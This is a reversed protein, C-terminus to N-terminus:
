APKFRERLETLVADADLLHVDGREVAAIRRDIEGAWASDVEADTNLLSIWLADLLDVREEATLRLADDIVLKAKANM